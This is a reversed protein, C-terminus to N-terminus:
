ILAKKEKYILALIYLSKDSSDRNHELCQAIYIIQDRLYDLLTSLIETKCFCFSLDSNIRRQQGERMRIKHELEVSSSTDGFLSHQRIDPDKCM